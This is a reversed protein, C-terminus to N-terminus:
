GDTLVESVREHHRYSVPYLITRPPDATKVVMLDNGDKDKIYGIEAPIMDAM